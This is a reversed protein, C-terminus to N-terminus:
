PFVNGQTVGQDPATKSKDTLLGLWLTGQTSGTVVREADPQSLALTLIAAPISSNTATSGSGTSQNVVTTPGVALVTARPILMRTLGVSSQTTGFAGLHVMVAVQSGPTVFGAVRSPDSLQVAVAMQGPPISLSTSGSAAAAFMGPQIVQGPLISTITVETAVPAIDSLADAPVAAQPLQKQEFAGADAAAQGTTGIAVSNKAVLVSVTLVGILRERM